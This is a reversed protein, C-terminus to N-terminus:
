YSKLLCLVRTLGIVGFVQNGAKNNFLIIDQKQYYDFLSKLENLNDLINYETFFWYITSTNQITTVGGM